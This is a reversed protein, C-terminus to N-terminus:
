AHSEMDFRLFDGDPIPTLDETPLNYLYAWATLDEQGFKVIVEERHFLGNEPQDPNYGEYTDLVELIQDMDKLEYLEGLVSESTEPEYIAGPYFDVKFLRGPMEAEGLYTTKSKLYNSMM